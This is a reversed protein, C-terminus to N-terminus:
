DLTELEHNRGPFFNLYLNFSSFVRYLVVLVSASFVTYTFSGVLM